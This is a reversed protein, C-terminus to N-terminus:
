GQGIAKTTTHVQLLAFALGLSVIMPLVLLLIPL